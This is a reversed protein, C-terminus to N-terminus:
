SGLAHETERKLEVVDSELQDLRRQIAEFKVAAALLGHSLDRVSDILAQAAEPPAELMMTKDHRRRADAGATRWVATMEKLLASSLANRADPRNLTITAIRDHADTLVLDTM